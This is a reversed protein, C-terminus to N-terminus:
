PGKISWNDILTQLCNCCFFICPEFLLSSLIQLIMNKKFMVIPVVKEFNSNDPLFTNGRAIVISFCAHNVCVM